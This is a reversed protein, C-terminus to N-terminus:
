YARRARGAHEVRAITRALAEAEGDSLAAVTIRVGPATAIRFREGSLARWGAEQLARIVPAEERVPVWVNLGTRGYAPLEREALADILTRRRQAYAESARSCTGPFGPDLLMSAAVAQLLHSVWRPGLAQRGEVRGITEQDGAVLALRLDPHLIKSASRIVTWRQCAPGIASRYPRGSIESAHDDEIVLLEPHGALILQLEAARESDLAAGIPNQARPVLLLAQVDKALAAALASPRLGREDVAVPVEILGLAMLIDRIPPYAPDEILVRDGPRLHAALVREIGDAAGSLVAIASGDVGDAGFWQQGFELLAPLAFELEDERVSREVDIRALAPGLPPLLEPDPLGISLDRLHDAGQPQGRDRSNSRVAPRRAVHTGRRGDAIVLGRERLIRYAANVTAPSTRLTTALGRMTPLPAGAALRGERIAAEASAAIQRATSGSIQYQALDSM